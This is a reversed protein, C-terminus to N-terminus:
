HTFGVVAPGVAACATAVWSCCDYPSLIACLYCASDCCLGTWTNSQTVCYYGAVPLFSGTPDGPDPGTECTAAPRNLPNHGVPAMPISHLSRGSSPDYAGPGRYLASEEDYRWGRFLFPNGIASSPLPAGGPAFVQPEGYDGYEYREALAGTADTVAVVNGLDDTHVFYTDLAGNGNVDDKEEMRLLDGPAGYVFSWQPSGGSVTQEIEGYAGWTLVHDVALPVGARLVYRGLADMAYSATAGTQTVEVAQGRYDYALARETAPSGGDIVVTNGCEDYSRSGTPTTTYQSVQFDAPVPLTPDMTYPGPHPGGTVSVRNGAGDLEYETVEPPSGSPTLTSGVLRHLSDHEYDRTTGTLLDSGSLRDCAANWSATQQVLPGVGNDTKGVVRRALDYAYETTVGNNRSIRAVRTPGMYDYSAVVAGGAIVLKPRDLADRLYIVTDGASYTLSTEYQKGDHTATVTRVPDAGIQQTEVRVSSLSDHSRTVLTDDDQALVLSSSGDYRWSETTTGVVGPAASVSRSRLRGLRDHELSQVTGNADTVTVPDGQVDWTFTHTTGDAYQELVRRDRADYHYTTLNGNPDTVSTPRSSDDWTESTVVTSVVTGSGTGTDTVDRETHLRRGLGDHTYRTVNGLQDRVQVVLDLSDHDMERRAGASDVLATRRGLDDYEFDTTYVEPPAGLDSLEVETIRMINSNADYTLTSSHGLADTVSHVRGASDYQVDTGHGNDDESRVVGSAADHFELSTSVGDGLPMGSAVDFHAIDARVLRQVEDYVYSAEALPVNPGSVGDVLEGDIRVSTAHGAADHHYTVENGEADLGHIWRDYGDYELLTTDPVGSPDELGVHLAVLNGNGDYDHQTTSVDAPDGEADVLRYLLGREDHLLRMVNTPQEGAVAVGSRWLTLQGDPDWEYQETVCEGPGIERQTQTPKDGKEFYSHLRSIHSNPRTAGTEDVNRLDTRVLRDAADYYSDTEYPFTGHSVRVVQDLASYQVEVDIGEPDVTRTIRGLDDYEYTTTLALSPQDVVVQHLYGAQPGTTYYSLTATRGVPDTYQTLQGHANHVLTHHIVQVGGGPTGTVVPPAIVDSLSGSSDYVYTWTHGSPDTYSTPATRFEWDSEQYQVVYDHRSRRAEAAPPRRPTSALDDIVVASVGSPCYNGGGCGSVVGRRLNGKITGDWGKPRIRGREKEEPANDISSSYPPDETVVEGDKRMTVVGKITGDWGRPRIRAAESSTVALDRIGDRDLDGAAARHYILGDWGRHKTRLALDDPQTVDPAGGGGGGGGGASRVPFADLYNYTKGEKVKAARDFSDKIWEYMGKSVRSADGRGSWDTGLDTGHAWSEVISPQDGGLPGPLRVLQLLDGRKRPSPNMSDYGLQAENGNPAVVRTVLHNADYEYRTEFWPPDGPRLPSVPRNQLDDTPATPDPARGTFERTVVLRAQADYLYESVNGLPDNVVTKSVAFGNGPAPVQAIYSYSATVGTDPIEFRLIRQQGVRDFAADAPNQTTSYSNELWTHGTGDTITLLNHNLEGIPSGQSYTYVETKGSPFDNGTPTGTVAPSTVSKLDDLEGGLEVGDYYSYSVSRGTFDTVSAVLSQANYAITVERGLTDTITVLRGLGDYAFGMANGFRDRVELIRGEAASGDLPAFTWTTKDPFTLVHSGDPQPCLEEFFGPAEYCGLPTPAFSDIRSDGGWVLVHGPNATDLQIRRDYGHTWGVGAATSRWERSRYHRTWVFDFGRGAIALDTAAYHLEGSHLHVGGHGRPSKFLIVTINKRINQGKAKPGTADYHPRPPKSAFNPAEQGDLGGACSGPSAFVTLLAAASTVSSCSDTVTVTIDSDDEVPTLGVLELVPADNGVIFGNRRWEYSPSGSTTAVVDFRATGGDCTQTSSPSRLLVPAIPENTCSGSTCSDATCANGDDCLQACDCDRGARPLGSSSAGLTGPACDTRARVLYYLVSGADPITPDTTELDTGGVDLCTASPHDLFNSAAASRMMEFRVPKYGGLDVGANWVFAHPLGPTPATATLGTVEGPASWLEPDDDDCDGDRAFGDGDLDGPGGNM